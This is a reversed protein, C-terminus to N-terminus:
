GKDSALKNYREIVSKPTAAARKLLALIADGDIPSLEIRLRTAEAVFEKDSVMAKYATRLAAARDAPLGPPAVTPLAMEFPLEALEILQRAAADRALERGTPVNPLEKHRTARGFQIIPILQGANWMAAQGARVSYYGIVQGDLEGRQQALFMPAAGTYGRIVKLNLGLVDRAVLAFTLNTSGSRNAGLSAQMAGPKLDAVSRAKHAANILLLYADNGYSSLSGLWTFQLPDFKANRDGTLALLPIAREMMSIVSGDKEASNYLVNANALGGAGPQNQVVIGPKGPLHRGLFRAVVRGTIDNIGGPSTPVIMTITRGAYFKEVSQATAAGAMSAALLGAVLFRLGLTRAM